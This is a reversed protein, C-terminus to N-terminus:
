PSSVYRAREWVRLLKILRGVWLIGLQLWGKQIEKKRYVYSFGHTLDRKGKVTGRGEGM